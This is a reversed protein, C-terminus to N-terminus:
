CFIFIFASPKMLGRLPCFDGANLADISLHHEIANKYATHSIRGHGPASTKDPAQATEDNEAESVSPKHQTDTNNKADDKSESEKDDANDKPKKKKCGAGFFWNEYIRYHLRRSPLHGQYGSQWAFASYPLAVPNTQYTLTMSRQLLPILKKKHNILSQQCNTQM